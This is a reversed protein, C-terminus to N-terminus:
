RLILKRPPQAPATAPRPIYDNNRLFERKAVFELPPRTEGETECTFRIENLAVKGKYLKKTEKGSIRRVIAFSIHDGNVKGDSIVAEGLPDTLKGTLTTGAEKFSFITEGPPWSDSMKVIWNGLIDAAWLSTLLALTIVTGISLIKTKM